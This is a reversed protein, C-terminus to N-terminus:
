AVVERAALMADAMKYSWYACMDPDVEAGESSSSIVGQMAKTAMYDRLSMGTDGYNVGHEPTTPFAPGGNVTSM